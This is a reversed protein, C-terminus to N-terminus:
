IFSPCVVGKKNIKKLRSLIYIASIEFGGNNRTAMAFSSLNVDYSLHVQFNNYKLGAMPYIADSRKNSTSVGKNRPNLRYFLGFDLGVMSFNKAPLYSTAFTGIQHEQLTVKGSGNSYFQSCFALSIDWKAAVKVQANASVAHRIGLRESKNSFFSYKKPMNIHGANYGLLFNTRDNIAYKYAVGLGLDFVTFSTRGFSEDSNATSDFRDGNFQNDFYLAQYSFSRNILGPQIGLSITHKEAVKMAVSIPVGVSLSSLKSDGARDYLLILGGGLRSGKSFEKFNMEASAGVTNYAVPVSQWQNRYNVVFRYDGDFLNTYGASTNVPSFNFQSFHIDQAVSSFSLTILFGLTVLWMCRYSCEFLRQKKVDFVPNDLQLIGKSM